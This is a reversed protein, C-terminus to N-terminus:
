AVHGMSVETQRHFLPPNDWEGFAVTVVAGLSDVHGTNTIRSSENEKEEIELDKTGM